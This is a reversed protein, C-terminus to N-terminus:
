NFEQRSTNQRKRMRGLFSPILDSALSKKRSFNLAKSADESGRKRLNRPKRWCNKKESGQKQVIQAEM